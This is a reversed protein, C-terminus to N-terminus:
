GGIEGEYHEAVVPPMVPTLNKDLWDVIEQVTNLGAAEEDPITINFEREVEMIIEVTDLSDLGLDDVLSSEPKIDDGYGKGDLIKCVKNFIQTNM